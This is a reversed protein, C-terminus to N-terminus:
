WTIHSGNQDKVVTLVGSFDGFEIASHDIMWIQRKTAEARDRLLECLSNIPEKSLHSSAEDYFEIESVLGAREMILNALGLSGALKLLQTEGASFSEWKIPEDHGPVHVLVTFGRTIGGSKNEREIDLGIHWEPLGLKSLNNNIEIELTKLTEDIVLLRIRRFGTVWYNFDQIAQDTADLGKKASAIGKNLEHLEIEKKRALEDFGNIEARTKSVSEDLRDAEDILYDVRNMNIHRTRVASGLADKDNNITHHLANLSKDIKVLERDTEKKMEMLDNRDDIHDKFKSALEATHKERHGEDVAQECNSCIVGLREMRDISAKIVKLKSDVVARERDIENLNETILRRSEEYGRSVDEGMKIRTNLDTIKVDCREIEKKCKEAEDLARSKQATFDAIAKRQSEGWQKAKEHLDNIARDMSEAQGQILALEREERRRQAELQQVKTLAKNSLDLWADLGMINSFLTLKEAASLDFFMDRGQPIMVGYHFGEFPIILANNLHDQNVTEGNLSLHNPSLKRTVSVRKGRIIHEVTVSCATAGRHIVDGSRLGKATKGYDCWSIANLLSSKGVGNRDLKPNALNIGTM